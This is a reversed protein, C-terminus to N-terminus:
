RISVSALFGFKDLTVVAEGWVLPQVFNRSHTTRVRGLLKGDAKAFWHQFGEYDAVVLNDGIISPATIKRAHLVDQKWFASGTRRDISWLDSDEASLYIASNDIAIAQYSSFKRSWLLDGSVAQVAALHGQFSVVYIVGDRIVFRGDLDVLREIETRGSPLSITTEWRTKGNSRDYAILKGDDFGSIVLQGAVLPTSNGTLSLAPVRRSVLWQQSGDEVSLSRLRGDVTRVFVQEGDVVPTARIESDFRARWLIELGGELERYAIVDGNRSTAILLQQNGGAGTIPELGTKHRWLFRGNSLNVARMLGGTDITYARDGIILPRLRYAARSSSARIDVVWNKDLPLSDEITTLLAPPESNDEGGSCAALLGLLVITTLKRLRSM